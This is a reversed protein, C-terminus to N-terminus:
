KRHLRPYCWMSHDFQTGGLPDVRLTIMKTGPPLKLDIPVIGATPSEWLRTGDAWVEFKVSDGIVNYGIATLRTMGVPVAFTVSSPAHAFLFEDCPIADRYNLVVAVSDAILQNHTPKGHGVSAAIVKFNRETLMEDIDSDGIEAAATRHFQPYCWYSKDFSNDGLPDVVLELLKSGPPLDVKMVAVRAAGSDVLNKGDVDILFRTVGSSQNYGVASFSKAGQPIPAKVRSPAHAGYFDRCLSYQPAILPWANETPESHDGGGVHNVLLQRWGVSTELSPEGVLRVIANRRDRERDGPTLFNRHVEGSIMHVRVQHFTVNNAGTCLWLAHTSGLNLFDGRTYRLRSHHGEWQMYDIKDDFDIHLAASPGNHRVRIRLRHREGNSLPSPSRLTPNTGDYRGDIYRVGGIKGAFGSVEMHMSHLGVPFCIGVGEKGEHRTFEVEFDYDGAVIAPLEYVGPGGQVEPVFTIGNATPRAKVNSPLEADKPLAEEAWALLNIWEGPSAADGAPMAASAPPVSAIDARLPAIQELRQALRKAQLTSLRPQAREYWVGAHVLLAARLNEEATQAIDWWADGVAVQAAADLPGASEAEAAEKWRVDDAKLLFPLASPWDNELVSVRGVTLNAPGDEADTALTQHAAALDKRRAQGALATTRAAAISRELATRVALRGTPGAATELLTLADSFRGEATAAEAERITQDIALKLPTPATALRLFETLRQQKTKAADVEFAGVLREVAVWFTPFDGGDQALRITTSLLGYLERPALSPMKTDTLLKKAALAKAAPRTAQSLKYLENLTKATERQSEASPVPLRAATSTQALGQAAAGTLAGVMLVLSIRVHRRPPRTSSFVQRASSQM